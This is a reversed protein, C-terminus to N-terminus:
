AILKLTRDNLQDGLQASQAIEIARLRAAEAVQVSAYKLHGLVGYKKWPRFFYRKEEAKLTALKKLVGAQLQQFEAKVQAWLAPLDFELDWVPQFTNSHDITYGGVAFIKQQVEHIFVINQPDLRRLEAFCAALLALNRGHSHEANRLNQNAARQQAFLRQDNALDAYAQAVYSM